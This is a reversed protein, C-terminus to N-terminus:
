ICKQSESNRYQRCLTLWKKWGLDEALIRALIDNLEFEEFHLFYIEYIWKCKEHISYRWWRDCDDIGSIDIKIQGKQITHGCASCTCEKRTKRTKEEVFM